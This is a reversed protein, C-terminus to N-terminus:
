QDLVVAAVIGPIGGRRRGARGRGIGDEILLRRRRRYPLGQRQRRGALGPAVFDVEANRHLRLRLRRAFGDLLAVQAVPRGFGREADEEAGRRGTAARLNPRRARDIHEAPHEAIGCHELLDAGPGRDPHLPCSSAKMFIKRSVALTVSSRSPTAMPSTSPQVVLGVSIPLSFRGKRGSTSSIQEMTGPSTLRSTTAVSKSPMTLSALSSACTAFFTTTLHGSVLSPM